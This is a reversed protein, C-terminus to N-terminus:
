SESIRQVTELPLDSALSLSPMGPICRSIKGSKTDIMPQQVITKNQPDVPNPRGEAAAVAERLARRVIMQDGDVSFTEFGPQNKKIEWYQCINQMSDAQGVLVPVERRANIFNQIAGAATATYSTVIADINQYKAMVPLTAEQNGALTWNGQVTALLNLGPSAVSDFGAVYEPDGLNGPSGAIYIYNAKGNFHANLFRAADAGALFNSQMILATYDVGDKATASVPAAYPVIQVGRRYATRLAPAVSAGFDNYTLIADVGQSVLSNLSTIYNSQSGNADVYVTSITPCRGAEDEFEARTIRRWQNAGQGDLLAVTMERTPCMRAIAGAQGIDPFGDVQACAMPQTCRPYAFGADTATPATYSYAASGSSAADCAATGVLSALAAAAIATRMATRRRDGLRPEHLQKSM